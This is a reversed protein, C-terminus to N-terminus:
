INEGRGSGGSGKLKGERGCLSGGEGGEGGGM